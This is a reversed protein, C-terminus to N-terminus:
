SDRLAALQQDLREKEVLLAAREEEASEIFALLDGVAGGALETPQLPGGARDAATV